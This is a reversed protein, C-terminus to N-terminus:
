GRKVATLRRIMREIEPIHRPHIAKSNQGGRRTEIRMGDVLGSLYMRNVGLKEALRTISILNTPITQPM